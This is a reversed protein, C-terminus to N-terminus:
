LYFFFMRPNAWDWELNTDYDDPINNARQSDLDISMTRGQLAGNIAQLFFITYNLM